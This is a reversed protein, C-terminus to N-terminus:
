GSRLAACHLSRRNRKRNERLSQFCPGIFLMLAPSAYAIISFNVGMTKTDQERKDNLLTPTAGKSRKARKAAEQHFRRSERGADHKEYVCPYNKAIM